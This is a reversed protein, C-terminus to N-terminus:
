VWVPVGQATAADGKTRREQLISDVHLLRAIVDIAEPEQSVLLNAVAQAAQASEARTPKSHTAAAMLEHSMTHLKQRRCLNSVLLLVSRSIRAGSEYKRISPYPIGTLTAMQYQTLALAKRAACFVQTPSSAADSM